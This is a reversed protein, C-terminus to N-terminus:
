ASPVTPAAGTQSQPFAGQDEGMVRELSSAKLRKLQRISLREGLNVQLLENIQRTKLGSAVLTDIYRNRQYREYSKFPRLRIEIQNDDNRLAPDASLRKWLAIFGDYGVIDAVALWHAQLGIEALERLRADGRLESATRGDLYGGGGQRVPRPRRRAGVGGQHAGDLTAGPTPSHSDTEPWLGLQAGRGAASRVETSM